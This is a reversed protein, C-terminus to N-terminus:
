LLGLSWVLAILIHTLLPTPDPYFVNRLRTSFCCKRNTFMSSTCMMYVNPHFKNLAHLTKGLFRMLKKKKVPRLMICGLTACRCVLSSPLFLARAFGLPAYLGTNPSNNYSYLIWTLKQCSKPQKTNKPGDMDGVPCVSVDYVFGGGGGGRSLPWPKTQFIVVLTVGRMETSIVRYECQYFCIFSLCSTAHQSTIVISAKESSARESLTLTVRKREAM